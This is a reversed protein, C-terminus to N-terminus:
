QPPATRVRLNDFYAVAPEPNSNATIGVQIRDAGASAGGLPAVVTAGSGELVMRGDLRVRASGVGDGGLTVALEVHHWTGPALRPARENTWAHRVGIKSRDIRLRGHRLYLRIGPNTDHGCRACEIDVLHVSNLPAGPPVMLDFEIRALSGAPLKAPRAVLAAKPVRGARAAATARLARGESVEIVALRGDIEQAYDWAAGRCPAVCLGRQFDEAFSSPALLWAALLAPVPM